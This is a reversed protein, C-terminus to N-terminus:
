GWNRKWYIAKLKLKKKKKKKEPFPFAHCARSLGTFSLLAHFIKSCQIAKAKDWKQIQRNLKFACIYLWSITNRDVWSTISIITCKAMSINSFDMFPPSFKLQWAELWGPHTEGNVKDRHLGLLMVTAQSFALEWGRVYLPHLSCPNKAFHSFTFRNILVELGWSHFNLTICTCPQLLFIYVM